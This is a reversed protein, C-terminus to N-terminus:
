RALQDIAVGAYLAAGVAMVDEQFVVRDSHNQPTTTVDEDPPRAGLFAIAGSVRQLVYSFDESGMIPAALERVQAEGVLAAATERVSRTFAPENITVPYGPEIGVEASGGHAAAIGPVLREISSRVSARTGESVTRITGLLTASEAIVNSTTGADISAITVVAPDFPDIRRTVMTQLALVLEAAITIPDVALHPSSAHGGRGHVTIRLTDGSAMQPGPRINITGAPYRMGIHIAFASTVDTRNAPRTTGTAPTTGAAPRTTGTTPDERGLELLGEDLMHRAGHYGEEGPQFMLLVRGTLHARRDMLLRAAGLLMAVHTDHGCAHMVGPVESAFELGTQEQLPLADMDARLLITPGEAAGEIMSTVSGISRGRRSGLGLTSLEDVILAQTFPLQLGIEPRRHLRRRVDIMWPLLAESAAVLPEVATRDTFVERGSVPEADSMRLDAM